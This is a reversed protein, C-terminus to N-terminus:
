DVYHNRAQQVLQRLYSLQTVRRWERQALGALGGEPERMENKFYEMFVNGIWRTILAMVVLHLAAGALYGAGPVTKLLSAVAPVAINVGLIGLLNKGLQGLLQVAVDIDVDQKYVKALDVVMKTSIAIGAAIDVFPLPSLAASAGGVGWMYKTVIQNARRDLAQEVKLRAQDVLGRSQLLLNALLLDSGDKKVVQMMRNALPEIAVPVTVEEEIESGDVAIRVRRRQTARARVSVIDERRVFEEAQKSIQQLLKARDADNYLDEKNFCIIVRKEMQGLLELLRFESDRLPGDVVLLIIDASKAADAAVIQRTEGDVEGLGPTDVLIVRNDGVWPIENRTVTTGGAIESAFANRGALANLLSSKGSSITGFAVIELRQHDLKLELKERLPALQEALDDDGAEAQFDDISALNENLETRREDASLQSPNRQRREKRQSKLRKARVLRYLTWGGAGVILLAGGIVSVLYAVQAMGGLEAAERYYSAILSPLYILGGGIIVLAVIIWFSNPLPFRKM